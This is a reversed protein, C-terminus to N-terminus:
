YDLRTLALVVTPKPLQFSLGEFLEKEQDLLSGGTVSATKEPFGSNSFTEYGIHKQLM